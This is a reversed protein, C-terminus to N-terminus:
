SSAKKELLDLERLRKQLLFYRVIRNELQGIPLSIMTYIVIWVPIMNMVIRGVLDVEQWPILITLLEPPVVSVVQGGYYPDGLFYGVWAYIPMVIVMTIPMVKMMQTSSEMSRAMMKPQEAQLKKIKYLNNETRAKRMEKNFDSQIKQNKAQGVFDTMLTRIVTSLTIMILGAIVLTLVPWQGNFGIVPEFAYNMAKGIQTRYMMVILMVVMGAVMGIMTGKPMQPMSQQVQKMSEPSGPNPM